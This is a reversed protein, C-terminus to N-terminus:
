DKADAPDPSHDLIMWSGDGDGWDVRVAEKHKVKLAKAVTHGLAPNKDEAWDGLAPSSYLITAIEDPDTIGAHVAHNALSMAVESREGVPLPAEWKTRVDEREEILNTWNEPIGSFCDLDEYELPVVERAQDKDIGLFDMLWDLSYSRELRLKHVYCLRPNEYEPKRNQTGPVRLVRALDGVHDGGVREALKQNILPIFQLDDGEVPEDLLWYAHGGGGSFVTASPPPVQGTRELYNLSEFTKGLDRNGDEDEIDIDVWVTRIHEVDSAKGRGRVGERLSGLGWSITHFESTENLEEAYELAEECDRFLRYDHKDTGFACISFLDGDPHIAQLLDPYGDESEQDDSDWIEEQPSYEELEVEAEVEEQTGYPPVCPTSSSKPGDDPDSIEPVLKLKSIFALNMGDPLESKIKELQDLPSTKWNIERRITMLLVLEFYTQRLVSCPLKHLKRVTGLLHSPNDAQSVVAPILILGNDEDTLTWGADDLEDLIIRLDDIDWSHDAAIRRFPSHFFGPPLLHKARGSGPGGILYPLLLKARESLNHYAMDDFIWNPVMTFDSGPKPTIINPMDMTNLSKTM